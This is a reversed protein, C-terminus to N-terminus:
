RRSSRCWRRSTTPCTASLRTPRSASRTNRSCAARGPGRMPKRRIIGFGYTPENNLLLNEAVTMTQVLNIDQHVTVIRQALADDAGSFRVPEGDLRISAPMRSISAPSSRPSRRSAPATRASLAACAAPAPHRLRRRAAGQGRRLEEGPRPMALAARRRDVTAPAAESQSRREAPNDSRTAREGGGTFAASASRLAAPRDSASVQRHGAPGRRVRRRKGQDPAEHRPRRVDQVEGGTLKTLVINMGEYGMKYPDQVVLADIKGDQVM